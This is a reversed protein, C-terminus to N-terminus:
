LWSHKYLSGHFPSLLGLINFLCRHSENNQYMICKACHNPNLKAKETENMQVHLCISMVCECACVCVCVEACPRYNVHVSVQESLHNVKVKPQM